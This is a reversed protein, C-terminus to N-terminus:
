RETADKVRGTDPDFRQGPKLRIRRGDPLRVIVTQGIIRGSEVRLAGDVRDGELTSRDNVWVAPPGDSRRVFGQLKVEPVRPPEAPVVARLAGADDIPELRVNNRARDLRAREQGQTFVRQDTFEAAQTVFCAGLAALAYLIRAMVTM